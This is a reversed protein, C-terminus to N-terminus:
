FMIKPKGLFPDGQITFNMLLEVFERRVFLILEIMLIISSHL